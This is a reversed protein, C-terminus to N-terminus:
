TRRRDQGTLRLTLAGGALRSLVREGLVEGAQDAPVNTTAITPLEEMWRRNVIGYLREAAWETAREAGVDDLVLLAARQADRGLVDDGGPRMDDLLDVVPAFVFTPQRSGPRRLHRGRHECWARGAACAAWSKGTGVPGLLVVNRVDDGSYAWGSLDDAVAGEVHGLRAPRLKPPVRRGWLWDLWEATPDSVTLTDGADDPLDPLGLDLPRPGFKDLLRAMTTRLPTPEDDNM